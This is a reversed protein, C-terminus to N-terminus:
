SILSIDVFDLPSVSLVRVRASGGGRVLVEVEAEGRVGDRLGRRKDAEARL